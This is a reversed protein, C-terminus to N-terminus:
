GSAMVSLAGLSGAPLYTLRRDPGSSRLTVVDRGLAEVVGRLDNASQTPRVVVETRAEALEFLVDLFSRNTSLARDGSVGSWHELTDGTAAHLAQVSRNPVVVTGHRASLELHDAGVSQLVGQFAVTGISVIVEDGREAFDLCIGAFTAAEQSQRQLSRVRRRDAAAAAIRADHLETSLLGDM